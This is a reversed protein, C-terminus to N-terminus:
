AQIIIEVPMSPKKLFGVGWRQNWSPRNGSGRGDWTGGGRYGGGDRQQWGGQQWGGQNWNTMRGDQQWRSQSGGQDWGAGWRNHPNEDVMRGGNGWRTGVMHSIVVKGREGKQKRM